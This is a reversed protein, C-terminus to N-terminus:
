WTSYTTGKSSREKSSSHVDKIGNMCNKSLSCDHYVPIWDTKDTIPDRPIISLYRAYVLEDLSQPPAGKEETFKKIAERMMALHAKLYEERGEQVGREYGQNFARKVNCGSFVTLGVIVPLAILPPLFSNLLKHCMAALGRGSFGIEM